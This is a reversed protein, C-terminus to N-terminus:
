VSRYKIAVDRGEVLGTRAAAACPRFVRHDATALQQTRVPLPMAVAFGGVLASALRLLNIGDFALTILDLDGFSIM